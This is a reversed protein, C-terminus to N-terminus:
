WKNIVAEVFFGTNGLKYGCTGYPNTYNLYSSSTLDLQRLNLGPVDGFYLVTCFLRKMM